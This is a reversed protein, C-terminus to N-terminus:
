LLDVTTSKHDLTSARHFHLRVVLHHREVVIGYGARRRTFYAMGGWLMIEPWVLDDRSRDKDRVM